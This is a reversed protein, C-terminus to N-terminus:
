NHSFLSKNQIKIILLLYVLCNKKNQSRLIAPLANVEHGYTQDFLDWHINGEGGPGLADRGGSRRSLSNRGIRCSSGRSGRAGTGKVSSCTHAYSQAEPGVRTQEWQPMFIPLEEKPELPHGGERPRSGEVRRPM